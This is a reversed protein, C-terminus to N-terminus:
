EALFRAARGTGGDTGICKGPSNCTFDFDQHFHFLFDQHFCSLIRNSASYFDQWFRFVVAYQLNKHM